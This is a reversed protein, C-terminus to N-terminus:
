GLEGVFWPPYVVVKTSRGADHLLGRVRDRVPDSAVGVLQVADLPVSERVLAEAGALTSSGHLRDLMGLVAEGSAFRTYTGAADGDALSVEGLARVTSVLLVFDTPVAARAAASWRPQEAGERLEVWGDADPALYFPVYEAVSGGGTVEATQRLERTLASSVDVSPSALAPAVLAGDALISALNSVHTVHYVRQDLLAPAPTRVRPAASARPERRATTGTARSSVRSAVPRVPAAKPFCIDCLGEDFGHICEAM